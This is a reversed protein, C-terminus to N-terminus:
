CRTKHWCSVLTFGPDTELDLESGPQSLESLRNFLHGAKAIKISSGALFQGAGSGATAGPLWRQLSGAPLL